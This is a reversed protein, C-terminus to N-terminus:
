LRGFGRLMSVKSLTSAAVTAISVGIQACWTAQTIAV